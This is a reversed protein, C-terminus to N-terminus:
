FFDKFAKQIDSFDEKSLDFLTSKDRNMKNLIKVFDEYSFIKLGLENCVQEIEEKTKEIDKKNEIIKEAEFYNYHPPCKVLAFEIGKYEFVFTKTALKQGKNWDLYKFLQVAEDFKEKDIPISIEHRQDSGGWKGYKMVIEAKKNTIRIRLDVPDDKVEEVDDVHKRFYIMSFRDKESIFKAKKRFEELQKDFNQLEGRVEVEIKVM